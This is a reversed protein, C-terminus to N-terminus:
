PTTNSHLAKKAHEIRIREITTRFGRLYPCDGTMTGYHFYTMAQMIRPLSWAPIWGLVQEREEIDVFGGDNPYFIAMEFDPSEIAYPDTPENAFVGSSNGRECYNGLGYQVSLTYGNPATWHFGREGHGIKSTHTHNM